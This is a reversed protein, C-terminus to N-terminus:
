AHKANAKTYNRMYLAGFMIVFVVMAANIVAFVWFVGSCHMDAIYHYYFWIWLGIVIVFFQLLQVRTIYRKWWPNFSPVVTKYAYYAYMPVHVYSNIFCAAWMLSFDTIQGVWSLYPTMLHHVVHIARLRSKRVVIFVTDVFEYFKSLYNLLLWFNLRKYLMHDPDCTVRFMAPQDQNAVVDAVVVTFGVGMVLSLLCLVINHLLFFADTIKQATPSQKKVQADRAKRKGSLFPEEPEIYKKLGYIFIIYGVVFPTPNLGDLFALASM